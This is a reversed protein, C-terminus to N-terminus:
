SYYEFDHNQSMTNLSTLKALIQKDIHDLSFNLKFGTICISCTCVTVQLADTEFSHCAAQLVQVAYM